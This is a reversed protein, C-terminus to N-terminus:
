LDTTANENSCRFSRGSTSTRMTLLPTRRRGRKDLPCRTIVPAVVHQMDGVLAATQALNIQHTAADRRVSRRQQYLASFQTLWPWTRRFLMAPRALRPRFRQGPYPTVDHYPSPDRLVGRGTITCVSCSCRQFRKPVFNLLIRPRRRGAPDSAPPGPRRVM